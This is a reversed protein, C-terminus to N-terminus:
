ELRLIRQTYDARHLLSSSKVLKVDDPCSGGPGRQVFKSLKNFRSLRHWPGHEAEQSEVLAFAVQSSSPSIEWSVKAVGECWNWLQRPFVGDHVRQSVFLFSEGTRQMAAYVLQGFDKDETILIRSEGVAREMVSPDEERPSIEAIAIVDHGASRLARVVSFDCSEDALFRM